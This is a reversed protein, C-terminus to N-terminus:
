EDGHHSHGNGNHHGNSSGNSLPVVPVTTGPLAAMLRAEVHDQVPESMEKLLSAWDLVQATVDVRLAEDLGLMEREAKLTEMIVHLYGSAPLRGERVMIKKIRTVSLMGGADEVTPEDGDKSKGKGYEKEVTRKATDTKSKEWAEWAEKRVHRYQRLKEHVMGSRMDPISDNYERQIKKRYMHVMPQSLNMKEAIESQTYGMGELRAIQEMAKLREEKNKFKPQAMSEVAIGLTYITKRWEAAVKKGEKM